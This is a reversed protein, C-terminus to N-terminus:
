LVTASTSVGCTQYNADPMVKAVVRATVLLEWRSGNTRWCYTRGRYVFPRFSRWETM